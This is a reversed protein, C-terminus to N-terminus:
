SEKWGAVSQAHGGLIGGTNKEVAVARDDWLALMDYDKKNTVPLVTGIHRKCWTQVKVIDDPDEARATVIRVEMGLNLWHQVWDVMPAIPPSNWWKIHAPPPQLCLTGDFDVGIWGPM